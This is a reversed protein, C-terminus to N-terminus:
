KGYGDGVTNKLTGVGSVEVEIMDGAVLFELPQRTCGFDSPTGTAIVDGPSLPSFSSIYAILWPIDFIFHELGISQKVAGNVHTELRLTSPDPLADATILWPGFSGSRYHNKGPTFQSSHKQWDRESSDNFCAHGGVHAKAAAPTIQFGARGIVVAMEGEFDFRSSAPPKCLGEGGFHAADADNLGSALWAALSPPAALSRTALFLV